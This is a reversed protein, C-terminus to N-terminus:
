YGGGPQLRRNELSRAAGSKKERTSTSDSGTRYRNGSGQSYISTGPLPATSAMSPTESEGPSPGNTPSVAPQTVGYPSPAHVGDPAAGNSPVGDPYAQGTYGQAPYPARAQNMAAGYTPPQIATQNYAATAGSGRPLPPGPMGPDTPNNSYRPAAADNSAGPFDPGGSPQMMGPAPMAPPSGVRPISTPPMYPASMGPTVHPPSMDPSVRSGGGFHSHQWNRWRDWLRSAPSYWSSSTDAGVPDIPAPAPAYSYPSPIGGPTAPPYTGTATAPDWQAAPTAAAGHPQSATYDPARAGLTAAGPGAYTPSGYTGGANPMAYGPPYSGPYTGTRAAVDSPSDARWNNWKSRVQDWSSSWWNGITSSGSSGPQPTYATGQSAYPTVTGPANPYTPVPSANAATPNAGAAPYAGTAPYSGAYAPQQAMQAAAAPVSSGTTPYGSTAYGPTMSTAPAPTQPGSPAYGNPAYGGAPYYAPSASNQYTRPPQAVAPNPTTLNSYQQAVVPTGTGVVACICVWRLRTIASHRM